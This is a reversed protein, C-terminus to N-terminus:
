AIRARIITRIFNVHRDFDEINLDDVAISIATLSETVTQDLITDLKTQLETQM